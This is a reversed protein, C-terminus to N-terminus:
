YVCVCIFLVVSGRLAAPPSRRSHRQETETSISVHKSTRTQARDHKTQGLRQNTRELAEAGVETKSLRDFARVYTESEGKRVGMVGHVCVAALGGGLM